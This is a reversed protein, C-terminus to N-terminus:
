KAPAPKASSTASANKAGKKHHKKMKKTTTTTSAAKNSDAAKAQAAFSLAATGLVLAMGLMLSTLKKM